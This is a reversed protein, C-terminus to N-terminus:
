NYVQFTLNKSTKNWLWNEVSMLMTFAKEM